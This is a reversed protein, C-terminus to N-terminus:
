TTTILVENVSPRRREAPTNEYEGFFLFGVIEEKDKDLDFLEYTKDDRTIGGTSWKYGMNLESLHLAMLQVSCSMTAYDEKERFPDDAKEQVMIIVEPNLIKKLFFNEDRGLDPDLKNKKSELFLAALEKKKNGQCWIYKWPFSFKHNPAKLANNLLSQIFKEDVDTKKYNHITRTKDLLDNFSM